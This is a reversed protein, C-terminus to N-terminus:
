TCTTAGDRSRAPKASWRASSTPSCRSRSPGTPVCELLEHAFQEYDDVQAKRMLTPNTTFGAILPEAALKRIAAIDAEDAFVRVTLKSPDIM